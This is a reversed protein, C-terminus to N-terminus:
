NRKPVLNSDLLTRQYKRRPEEPSDANQGIRLGYGMYIAVAAGLISQGPKVLVRQRKAM